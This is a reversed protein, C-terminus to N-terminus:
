SAWLRGEVSVPAGVSSCLGWDRTALEGHAGSVDVDDIRASRGTRFVLRTVNRGGGPLV